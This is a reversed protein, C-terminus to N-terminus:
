RSPRRATVIWAAGPLVVGRPTVFPALAARLAAALRARVEPPAGKLAAAAPGAVLLFAVAEELTAAGGVNQPERVDEIAVGEFGAAGIAGRIRAPDDLGFPGPSGPPLPPPLEVIGAAAQLPVHMWANREVPQWCVFGLRGGPVLAARLNSFAAAFDAFFMVGFRSAVVDFPPAFRHTQADAAVFSVNAAGAARDRARALMPESVDAGVVSGRPGARRALALTHGGCGCGVDLVRAGALDGLSGISIEGLTRLQADLREQQEVWKPGATSNWYEVQERNEGTV